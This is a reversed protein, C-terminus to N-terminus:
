EGDDSMKQTDTCKQIAVHGGLAIWVVCCAIEDVVITREDKSCVCTAKDITHARQRTRQTSNAYILAAEDNAVAFRIATACPMGSRSLAAFTNFRM